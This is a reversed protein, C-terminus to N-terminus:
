TLSMVEFGVSLIVDSCNTGGGEWWNQYPAHAYVFMGSGFEYLLFGSAVFEMRIIMYLIILPIPFPGASSSMPNVDVEAPVRTFYKSSSRCILACIAMTCLHLVHLSCM